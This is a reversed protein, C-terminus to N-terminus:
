KISTNDHPPRTVNSMQVWTPRHGSYNPTLLFQRVCETLPDLAHVRTLTQSHRHLSPKCSGATCAGERVKIKHVPEVRTDGTAKVNVSFEALSRIPHQQYRCQHYRTNKTNAYMDMRSSRAKHLEEVCLLNSTHRHALGHLQPPM